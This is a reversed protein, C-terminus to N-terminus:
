IRRASISALEARLRLVEANVEELSKAVKENEVDQAVRGKTYWARAIDEPEGVGLINKNRKWAANFDDQWSM